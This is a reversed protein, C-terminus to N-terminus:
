DEKGATDGPTYDLAAQSLSAPAAAKLHACCPRAAPHVHRKFISSQSLQVRGSM